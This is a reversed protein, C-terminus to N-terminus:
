EHDIVVNIRAAVLPMRKFWAPTIVVDVRKVHDLEGLKEKADVPSKAVLDKKIVGTNFKPVIQTKISGKVTMKGNTFDSDGVQTVIEDSASFVLDKEPPIGRRLIDIYTERFVAEKFVLAKGKQKLTMQFNAAETGEQVSPSSQTTEFQVAGDMVVGGAKKGIDTKLQDQAKKELAAKAAAIDEASVVTLEKTSGGSTSEIKGSLKDKPVSVVLGSVNYKDGAGEAQVEVTVKGAVKDGASNLTAKPANADATTVFALGGGSLKSGSVLAQDVGSDNSITATGKAKEGVNKTGSANFQDNVQTDAEVFDGPVQAQEVSPVKQDTAVNIDLDREYKEGAVVLTVQSNPIIIAGLIVAVILVVVFVFFAKSSRKRAPAFAGRPLPGHETVRPSVDVEHTDFSSAKPEDVKKDDKTDIEREQFHHVPVAPNEKVTLDVESPLDQPKKNKPEIVVRKNKVSDLIAIGAQSIMSAAVPDSTVVGIKKKANTAERQLLKLNMVSQAVVAGRPIVLTVEKSQAKHLRDVISTIEEDAEIYIVNDEM